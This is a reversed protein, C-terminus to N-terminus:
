RSRPRRKWTSSPSAVRVLKALREQLKERDYDSKTEDIQNRIQGTRAEIAAQEGAGDVVTTDDKTM